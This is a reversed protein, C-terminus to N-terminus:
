HGAFSQIYLDPSGVGTSDDYGAVAPLAAARQGDLGLTRLYALRSGRKTYPYAYNDRVIFLQKPGLPHDTVDHYADTGYRQYIVPNAFGLDYGAAQQADAEIGAFTPSAVSTGGIRSLAFADTTGDPQLTTEGVLMGTSPDALASVDPVVRMPTSTTGQPVATALSDPVVGQQYWPQPYVTSVGGGSGGDYIWNTTPATPTSAPGYAPPFPLSWSTGDASLPNLLTGWSTEYEYTNQAGVALSTGGVSTVWPSSTPYDVQLKNSVGPDEVQPAEYGSDGSSFFFGIGETAGAEFIADWAPQIVADDYPEGFSNTVITALHQNVIEADAAALDTDLCSAGGVYHVDADPAMGHVAEVDLTEEGYWGPADCENAATDTYTSPLYEEYQGTAFPKNHTVESFEDADSEMTPSAYADVVAVTQGSGTMGSASVGYAGRIQQPTYGRVSWPWHAGYATPEKTALLQGYFYSTPPAVWYNPDPPPLTDYPKMSHNATDLGSVALVDGAVSSPATAATEPARAMAGTPDQYEGFSVGFATSAEALTGTVSVYAGIGSTEGTVTLGNGTLWSKVAAAEAATPGFRAQVQEATLYDRYRAGTPDSVAKAYAALGAPDQGALYVQLSIARSSVSPIPKPTGAAWSPLTDPIPTRPTAAAATGAGLLAGLATAATICACVFRRRPVRPM